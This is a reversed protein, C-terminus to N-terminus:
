IPFDVKVTFPAEFVKSEGSTILFLPVRRGILAIMSANPPVTEQSAFSLFTVTIRPLLVISSQIPLFVAFTFPM